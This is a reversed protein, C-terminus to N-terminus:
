ADRVDSAGEGEHGVGGKESSTGDQHLCILCSVKVGTSVKGLGERRSFSVVVYIIPFEKSNDEGKNFPFLVQLPSRVRDRDECIMLIQRIKFVRAFERLPLSVPREKKLVKIEDPLDGRASVHSGSISEGSLIVEVGSPVINVSGNKGVGHDNIGKVECQGVVDLGGRGRIGKYELCEGGQSFTRGQESPGGKRVPREIVPM